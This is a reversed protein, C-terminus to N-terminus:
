GDPSVNRKAPVGDGEEHMTGGGAGALTEDVVSALSPLSSEEVAGALAEDVVGAVSLPFTEELAVALPGAGVVEYSSM